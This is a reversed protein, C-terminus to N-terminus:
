YEELTVQLAGYMIHRGRVYSHSHKGLTVKCIAQNYSATDDDWYTVPVQHRARFAEMFDSQESDRHERLSFTIVARARPSLDEHLVGDQTYYSQLVRPVHQSTYTGPAIWSDPITVGNIIVRYGDM